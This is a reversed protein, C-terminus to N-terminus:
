LSLCRQRALSPRTWRGNISRYWQNCFSTLTVYHSKWGTGLLFRVIIWYRSTTNLMRRICSDAVQFICWLIDIWCAERTKIGIERMRCWTRVWKQDLLNLDKYPLLCKHVQHIHHGLVMAGWGWVCTYFGPPPPSNKDSTGKWPSQRQVCNLNAFQEIQLIWSQVDTKSARPVHRLCYLGKWPIRVTGIKM